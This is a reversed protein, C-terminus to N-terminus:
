TGVTFATWLGISCCRSITCLLYHSPFDEECWISAQLGHHFWTMFIQCLSSKFCSCTYYFNGESVSLFTINFLSFSIVWFWNYLRICYLLPSFAPMNQCKNWASHPISTSVCIISSFDCEMDVIRIFFISFAKVYAWSTDNWDKGDKEGSYSYFRCCLTFGAVGCSCFILFCHILFSMTFHYLTFLLFSLTQLNKPHQLNNPRRLHSYLSDM